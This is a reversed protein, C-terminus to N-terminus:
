ASLVALLKELSAPDEVQACKQSRDIQRLLGSLVKGPGVEVFTTVGEAILVQMSETWRVAGTVQRVLADRLGGGDTVLAADVNVVVPVKATSFPIEQLIPSLGDQAPQMLSCHFPASVQLLVARRAGREKALTVAREVAATAGSIVTQEPSNLNAPEVPAGESSADRCVEAVAEPQMGLIAAMAGQGPPVAQQMLQGRRHVTRAATAFEIAGAAVNASYEGLSHGAVYDATVGAEALVRLAAVSVTFIAPQTFETLRLREEPGAFCLNALDFGLADNAEEFTRRAVAFTSALDRGMGVSQSGQGPFLFATKSM